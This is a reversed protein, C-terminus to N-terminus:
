SQDAKPSSDSSCDQQDPLANLLARIREALQELTEKPLSEFKVANAAVAPYDAIQFACDVLRSSDRGDLTRLNKLFAPIEAEDVLIPIVRVNPETWKRECIESWETSCVASSRAANSVLVLFTNCSRIETEIKERWNEGPEIVTDGSFIKAGTQQSYKALNKRLINAADSDHSRSYSIFIREPGSMM